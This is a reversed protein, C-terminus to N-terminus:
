ERTIAEDLNLLLNGVTAYAALEAVDLRPDAAREGVGVLRAGKEPNARFDALAAELLGRMVELERGRPGRGLVLRMAYGLREEATSGGEKIAREGLARSAEVFTVDNM